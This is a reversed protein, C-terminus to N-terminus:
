TDGLLVAAFVAWVVIQLVYATLPMTGVARLPIAVWRLPTRCVLLCLGIVAVAFGGSGIVEWLGSSHAEATWVASLYPGAEAVTAATAIAVG